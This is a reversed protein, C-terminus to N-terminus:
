WWSELLLIVHRIYKFVLLLTAGASPPGSYSGLAPCDKGSPLGDGPKCAVISGSNNYVKLKEPCKSLDIVCSFTPCDCGVCMFLGKLGCNYGNKTTTKVTGSDYDIMTAVPVALTCSGDGCDGTSCNMFQGSRDFTCGTAFFLSWPMDLEIDIRGSGKSPIPHYNVSPASASGDVYVLRPYLEKDSHNEVDVTIPDALAIPKEGDTGLNPSSWQILGPM